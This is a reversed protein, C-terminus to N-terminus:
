IDAVAEPTGGSMRYESPTVGFRRKFLHNFHSVDNFGSMYAIQSVPVEKCGSLKAATARLRENLICQTFTTNMEQLLQQLLRRSVNLHAAAADISVSPDCAHHRLYRLLARRRLDKADCSSRGARGSTVKLLNSVNEGLAEMEDATLSTGNRSLETLYSLLTPAFPGAPHFVELHSAMLEPMRPEIVVAPLKAVIRNVHVPFTVSVARRSDIIAISGAPQTVKQSGQEIQAEGEIQYSVLYGAAGANGLSERQWRLRHPSSRFKSCSWADHRRVVIEASFDALSAGSVEIKHIMKSVFARWSEGRDTRGVSDLCLSLLEM